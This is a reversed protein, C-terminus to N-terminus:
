TNVLLDFHNCTRMTVNKPGRGPRLCLAGPQGVQTFSTRLCNGAQRFSSPTETAGLAMPTPQVVIGPLDHIPYSQSLNHYLIYM